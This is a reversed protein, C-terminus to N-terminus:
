VEGVELRVYFGTASPGLNSREPISCDVSLCDSDLVISIQNPLDREELLDAPLRVDTRSMTGM